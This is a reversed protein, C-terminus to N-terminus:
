KGISHFTTIFKQLTEILELKQQKQKLDAYTSIPIQKLSKLEKLLAEINSQKEKLDTEYEQTLKKLNYEKEKEFLQLQKEYQGKIRSIELKTEELIKAEKLLEKEKEILCVKQGKRALYLAAYIGFIGGGIIVFDYKKM